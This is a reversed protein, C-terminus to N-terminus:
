RVVTNALVTAGPPVRGGPEVVAGPGVVAGAGVIVPATQLPQHRVPRDVDDHAHAFDVLVVGDGLRAGAGIEVHDHSLIVCREGLVAGAGIRVVASGRAHVRTGEGLVADGAVELTATPDVDLTVKRSM